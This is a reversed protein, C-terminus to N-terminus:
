EKEGMVPLYIEEGNQLMIEIGNGAIRTVTFYTMWRNSESQERNPKEISVKMGPELLVTGEFNELNLEVAAAGKKGNEGNIQMIGIVRIEPPEVEEGLNEIERFIQTPDRQDEIGSTIKSPPKQTIKEFAAEQVLKKQKLVDQAFVNNASICILFSFLFTLYKM